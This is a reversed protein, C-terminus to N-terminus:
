KKKLIKYVSSVAVLLQCDVQGVYLVVLDVICLREILGTEVFLCHPDSYLYVVRFQLSLYVLGSLQKQESKV